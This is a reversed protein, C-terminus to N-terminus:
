SARGGPQGPGSQCYLAGPLPQGVHGRGCFSRGAHPGGPGHRQVHSGPVGGKHGKEGQKRDPQSSRNRRCKCDNGDHREKRETWRILRDGSYELKLSFFPRNEELLRFFIKDGEWLNLQDLRTKDVWELTGESCEKITGEFGDATFLCMYETPWGEALFTVLGRFRWSTLTLGTEEEAERLLCEEPSEGEEFHGGIGIWKDKNVDKEKKVRHLMLYANEREIYCLTTLKMNCM